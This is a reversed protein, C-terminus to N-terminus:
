RRRRVGWLALLGLPFVSLPAPVVSDRVYQMAQQHAGEAQGYNFVLYAPLSREIGPLDTSFDFEL